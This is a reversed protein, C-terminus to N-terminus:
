LKGFFSTIDFYVSEQGNATRITILDYARGHVIKLSQERSKFGPYRQKLWAREAALGTDEDRASRIVVAQSYSSGDGGSYTSTPQATRCGIVMVAHATTCFTRM